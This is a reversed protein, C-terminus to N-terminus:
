IKAFLRKLFPLRNYKNIRDITYDLRDALDLLLVREETPEKTRVIQVLEKHQQENKM